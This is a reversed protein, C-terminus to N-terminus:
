EEKKVISLDKSVVFVDKPEFTKDMMVDDYIVFIFNLKKKLEILRTTIEKLLQRSNTLSSCDMVVIKPNFALLYSLQIKLQFDENIFQYSKYKVVEKAKFIGLAEMLEISYDYAEQRRMGQVAMLISILNEGISHKREDVLLFKEQGVVGIVYNELGLLIERENKCNITLPKKVKQLQEERKRAKKFKRKHALFFRDWGNLMEFSFDM